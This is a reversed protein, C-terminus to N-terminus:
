GHFLGRAISRFLTPRRVRHCLSLDGEGDDIGEAVMAGHLDLLVGDLPCDNRARELRELFEGKLAEYDTRFQDPTIDDILLDAWTQGEAGGGDFSDM